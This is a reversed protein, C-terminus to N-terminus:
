KLLEAYDLFYVLRVSFVQDTGTQSIDKMNNWYNLAIADDARAFSARYLLNLERGPAMWWVYKFDMNFINIRLDQDTYASSPTLGGESTLHFLEQSDIRNWAHRANLTLYSNPGFLYQGELSQTFERRVRMAMGISDTSITQAWGVNKHNGISVETRFNFHDNVRFIFMSSGYTGRAGWDAWRWQGGRLEYAFPKRFDSSIWANHWVSAPNIRYRGWVRPDYYDYEKPRAELEYGYALFSKTLAFYSYEMHIREFRQPEFLQRYQVKVRNRRRLLKENPTQIQHSFSFDQHIKNGRRQFGLDNPDFNPTVLELEHEWRWAGTQKGMEWGGAGGSYPSELDYISSQAATANLFHTNNLLNLNATIASVRADRTTGSANSRLVHTNIFGVSNNSGIRQDVAFVNYNTMPETLVEVAAGTSDKGLAYNNATLANLMGISLNKDTTGSVKTANLMRTFSQTTNELDGLNANTFNKPNGGIRRSYFLEAKNFLNVGETFFQRNEDFRQEFAEFNIFQEDYAVQSFDPLLTMDLTFSKNLGIKIDAGAAGTNNLNGASNRLTSGTINPRLSIRKPPNTVRIGELLGSQLSENEFNRDIPNWSYLTRTSRISRKINFGWPKPTEDAKTEPMRLVRYPIFIEARWSHETKVVTSYWVANWSGDEREGSTARSDGQVGAASLYFNFDNSGDNFPNIIIQAWDTNANVRDRPTLQSLVPATEDSFEFAIYLGKKTYFLRVDDSIGAPTPSPEPFYCELPALQAAKNWQVESLVGDVVMGDDYLSPIHASKKQNQATLTSSLIASLLLLYTKPM